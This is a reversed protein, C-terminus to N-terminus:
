QGQVEVDTLPLAGPLEPQVVTASITFDKVSPQSGVAQQTEDASTLTVNKLAPILQLRVILRSVDEFSFTKGSISITGVSNAAPTTPGATSATVTVPDAASLDLSQFWADDPVVLGIADLVDSLLTRGTYISQVVGQVNERQSALVEYEQLSQAQTEIKATQSELDSLQQKRDDLTNSFSYYGFGLGFIVVIFLGVMALLGWDTKTRPRESRPILNIRRAM